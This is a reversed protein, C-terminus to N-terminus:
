RNPGAIGGHKSSYNWITVKWDFCYSMDNVDHSACWKFHSSSCHLNLVHNAQAVLGSTNNMTVWMWEINIHVLPAGHQFVPPPPPTSFLFNLCLCLFRFSITNRSRGIHGLWQVVISLLIIALNMILDFRCFWTYIIRMDIYYNRFIDEISRRGFQPAQLQKFLVETSLQQM